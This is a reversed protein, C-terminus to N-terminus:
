GFVGERVGLGECYRGAEEEEIIEREGSANHQSDAARKRGPAAACRQSEHVRKSNKCNLKLTTYMALSLM